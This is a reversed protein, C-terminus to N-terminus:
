DQLKNYREALLADIQVALKTKVGGM